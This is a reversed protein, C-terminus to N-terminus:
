DFGSLRWYIESLVETMEEADLAKMKQEILEMALRYITKDHGYTELLEVLEGLYCEFYLRARPSDLAEQYRAIDDDYQGNGNHRIRAEKLDMLLRLSLDRGEVIYYKISHYAELDLYPDGYEKGYFLEYTAGLWKMCDQMTKDPMRRWRDIEPQVVEVIWEGSGIEWGSPYCYECDFGEDDERWIQLELDTPEDPAM